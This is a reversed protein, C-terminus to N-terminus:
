FGLDKASKKSPVGDVSGDVEREFFAKTDAIKKETYHKKYVYEFAPYKAEGKFLMDDVSYAERSYYEGGDVREKYSQTQPQFYLSSMGLKGIMKPKSKSVVIRTENMEYPEATVPDIIGFKNPHYVPRWVAVMQMGQYNAQQGGSIAHNEPLPLYYIGSHPCKVPETDRVHFLIFTHLNLKKSMRNVTQMVFKVNEDIKFYKQNEDKNLNGFHDIVVVDIHIGYESNTDKISHALETISFLSSSSNIIYFHKDVFEDIAFALEEDTLTPDALSKRMYTQAIELVIEEPDGAETLYVAIKLGYMVALNVCQDLTFQTKGQHSYSYITTSYGRRYSIYEDLSKYGTLWGKSGAEQRKQLAKSKLSGPKIAINKKRDETNSM